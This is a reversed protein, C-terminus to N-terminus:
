QKTNEILEEIIAEIEMKKDKTIAGAQFLLDAAAKARIFLDNPSSMKSCGTTRQTTETRGTATTHGERVSIHLPLVPSWSFRSKWLSELLEKSYLKM